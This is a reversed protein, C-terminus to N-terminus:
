YFKLIQYAEAAGGNSSSLIVNDGCGGGGTLISGDSFILEVVMGLNWLDFTPSTAKIYLRGGSICDSKKAIGSVPIMLENRSNPNYQIGVAANQISALATKLEVRMTVSTGIDKGNVHTCFIAKVATLTPDVYPAVIAFLGSTAVTASTRLNTMKIRYFKGYFEAPQKATATLIWPCSRNVIPVSATIVEKVAGSTDVLEIKVSDASQVNYTWLINYGYGPGSYIKEQAQPATIILSPTAPMRSLSSTSPPQEARMFGPQTRPALEAAQCQLGCFLVLSLLVPFIRFISTWIIM